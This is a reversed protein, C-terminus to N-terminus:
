SDSLLPPPSGAPTFIGQGTALMARPDFEAKLRAFRAWRKAGFHAEWEPEAKHNALYQRAEIGAEACFDLIQRNQRALAELSKSPDDVGPVASRLFAVLYFVDEDPTVVSSRPDWKHKNMPYILIPGGSTRSGLIGRFVARDFDAIRSAPVFLNLWPHPVEWMGKGRLKLEAKHVRDLFDVYPLDTTFVTGPMFSLEGLLADVEQDVNGATSADYNKTVELCYLVGTHHKLSSLKVPNQPSFFSSRWNNILGEAAVVFGEVYDFRRRGGHQSILKEQDATFETFNSYLARIWRVRRPAPELAIRARTIIGLQGLGGLAGFFLDPNKAASCTVAEGKGTVIDLEYVNSIQPGHHFAQGSIGANSLTGGVSLYLYDTWSRPALGGHALTWNLVDIWLEGGWVDVYHGGLAASYVPLARAQSNRRRGHVDDAARWGHSMDVVVGGPVQAQGSISHGHGRASVRIGSASEYAARVLSAVDDTGRPHYVALPEGRTFGGFDRSAEQIDAPDVSLRGGGVTGGGLQLLEAPPELPLGVTSILCYIQFVMFVLCRAM